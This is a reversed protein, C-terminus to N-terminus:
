VVSKRDRLVLHEVLTEIPLSEQDDPPTKSLIILDAASAEAVLAHDLDGHGLRWEWSAGSKQWFDRVHKELTGTRRHRADAIEGLYAASAGRGYVATPMDPDPEVYFLIVHAGHATALDATLAFLAAEAKPGPCELVITKIM